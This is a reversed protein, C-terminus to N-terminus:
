LRFMLFELLPLVFLTRECVMIDLGRLMGSLRVAVQRSAGFVLILVELFKGAVVIVVLFIHGYVAAAEVLKISAEVVLQTTLLTMLGIIHLM